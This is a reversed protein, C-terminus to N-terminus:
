CVEELFEPNAEPMVVQLNVPQFRQRFTLQTLVIDAGADIAEREENTLRWRTIMPCDNRDLYVAPLPDYEPQGAGLIIEISESGPM